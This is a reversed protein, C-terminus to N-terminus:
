PHDVRSALGPVFQDGSPVFPIEQVEVSGVDCGELAPRDEGRQDGEPCTADDGADIAPSAPKPLHTMTPGGNDGLDELLMDGIEVFAGNDCSDDDALNSAGVGGVAGAFDCNVGLTGLTILSNTIGLTGSLANVIGGAADGLAANRAFTVNLVVAGGSNYLGGGGTDAANTSVTSNALELSGANHIAGGQSTVSNLHFTSNVISVAGVPISLAGGALAHNDSFTTEVIRVENAAGPQARLAGGAALASNGDFESSMIAANGSAQDIAGGNVADNDRFTSDDVFLRALSAIAGGGGVSASNGIFTAGAVDLDGGALIGGGRAGTNRDFFTATVGIAAEAAIAGGGDAATNSQFAGGTVTLPAGTLIAGGFGSSINGTFTSSTILATAAVVYIAGGGIATNGTFSSGTVELTGDTLYIAGGFEAENDVFSSNTVLLDGSDVQIAAGSDVGANGGRLALASVALTADNTLVLIGSAGDGDITIGAGSGDLVLDDTVAPLATGDLVIDGAVDFEIRDEGAPDGPSCDDHPQGDTTDNANEIAERLTCEDDDAVTDALSDVAITLAHATRNSLSLAVVVAFVALAGVVPILRPM